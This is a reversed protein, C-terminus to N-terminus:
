RRAQCMAPPRYSPHCRRSRLMPRCWPVRVARAIPSSERFPPRNPRPPRLEMALRTPRSHHRRRTFVAAIPLPPSHLLHRALSSALLPPSNAPRIERPLSAPARASPASNLERIPGGHEVVWWGHSRKAASGNGHSPSRRQQKRWSQSDKMLAFAELPFELWGNVPTCHSIQAM